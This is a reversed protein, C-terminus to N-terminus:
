RNKTLNQELVYDSPLMGIISKFASNFTSRYKYGSQTYIHDLTYKQMTADNLLSVAYNIRFRNLMIRFDGEPACRRIAKSIYNQNSGLAKALVQASFDPDTFPKQEKMYDMIRQYLAEDKAKSDAEAAANEAAITAATESLRTAVTETEPEEETVIHRGYNSQVMKALFALLLIASIFTLIMGNQLMGVPFVEAPFFPSVLLVAAMALITLSIWLGIYQLHFVMAGVIVILYWVLVVPSGMNWYICAVPFLYIITYSLYMVILPPIPIKKHIFLLFLWLIHQVAFLCTLISLMKTGYLTYFVAFGSYILATICLFLFILKRLSLQAVTKNNDMFKPDTHQITRPLPVFSVSMNERVIGSINQVYEWM